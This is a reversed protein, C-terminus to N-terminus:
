KSVKEKKDEKEWDIKTGAIDLEVTGLLDEEEEEPVVIKMVNKDEKRERSAKLAKEQEKKLRMKKEHDAIAALSDPSPPNPAKKPKPPEVPTVPALVPSCAWLSSIGGGRRNQDHTVFLFEFDKYDNYEIDADGRFLIVTQDKRQPFAPDEEWVLRPKINGGHTDLPAVLGLWNPKQPIVVSTPLGYPIQQSRVRKM